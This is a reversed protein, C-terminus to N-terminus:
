FPLSPAAHGAQQLILPIKGGARTIPQSALCATVRTGNGLLQQIRRRVVALENEACPSSAVARIQVADPSQQVFQCFRFGSFGKLLQSLVRPSLIRGDPCRLLDSDRTITPVVLPFARGCACGAAPQWCGRDGVRYRILPMADNILSTWVFYGEQGPAVPRNDADLIELFGHEPILHMRGAECQQILGCNETLGYSDWVHAAFAREVKERLFPYLPEGDSFVARMPIPRGARLVFDALIGLVSPFGELAWGRHLWLFSLYAPASKESLHYISTLIQREPLNAVWYPPKTRRPAVIRTGFFTLRPSRPQLSAWAWQRMRFAWTRRAVRPSCWITLSAGTTGTTHVPARDGASVSSSLFSKPAHRVMERTVVPLDQLEEAPRGGLLPYAAYFPVTRRAHAVMRRLADAQYQAVQAADWGDHSLLEQLRRYMGPAYRNRALSLGRASVALTQLPRPMREYLGQLRAAHARLVREIM